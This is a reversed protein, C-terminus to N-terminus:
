IEGRLRALTMSLMLAPDTDLAMALKTFLWLSPCREGKELLSVYSPDTESKEALKEQSLDTTGQRLSKLVAGHAAQVQARTPLRTVTGGEAEQTPPNVLARRRRDNIVAPANM